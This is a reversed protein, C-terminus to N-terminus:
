EIEGSHMSCMNLKSLAIPFYNEILTFFTEPIFSANVVVDSLFNTADPLVGVSESVDSSALACKM